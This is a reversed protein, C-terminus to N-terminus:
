PVEFRGHTACWWAIVHKGAEDTHAYRDFNHDAWYSHTVCFWRGNDKVDCAAEVVYQRPIKNPGELAVLLEGLGAKTTAM